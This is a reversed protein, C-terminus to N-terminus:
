MLNGRTLGMAFVNMLFSNKKMLIDFGSSVFKQEAEGNKENKEHGMEVESRRVICSLGQAKDLSKWPTLPKSFRIWWNPLHTVKNLYCFDVLFYRM